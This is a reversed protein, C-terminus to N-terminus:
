PPHMFGRQPRQQAVRAEIKILRRVNDQPEWIKLSVGAEMARKTQDITHYPKKAKTEGSANEQALLTIVYQNLIPHPSVGM